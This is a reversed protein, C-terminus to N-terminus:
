TWLKPVATSEIAEDSGVVTKMIGAIWPVIMGVIGQFSRTALRRDPPASPPSNVAFFLIDPARNKKNKM